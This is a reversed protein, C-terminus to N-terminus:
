VMREIHQKAYEDLNFIKIHEMIIEEIKNAGLKDFFYEKDDPIDQEIANYIGYDLDHELDYDYSESSNIHIRFRRSFKITSNFEDFARKIIEEKKDLGYNETLYQKFEQQLNNMEQQEMEDLTLSLSM